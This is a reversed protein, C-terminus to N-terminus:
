SVATARHQPFSKRLRRRCYLFRARHALAKLRQQPGGRGLRRRQLASHMLKDALAYLPRSAQSIIQIDRDTGAEFDPEGGLENGAALTEHFVTGKIPYAVTTLAIDPECAELLSVTELIDEFGENMFGWMFFMGTQIGAGKLWGIARMVQDRTVGRKMLDLLRQSGSEAGVWLRFCRMERLADVIEPNLRDARSICEFPLALNRHERLLDRMQLLWPHKITFVDDAFWYHDFRYQQRLRDLEALVHTASRKRLSYGFVNHSCWTCRYPCGRSTILSIPRMGHHREWCDLYAELDIAARDPLPLSELPIKPKQPATRVLHGEHKFILGEIDRWHDPNDIQKLWHSFPLEGEGAIVLDFGRQLYAEAYYPPDPGGVVVRVKHDRIEERLHLVQLRTMMNAYFGVVEPEFRSLQRSFDEPRLFTGDYVMVEHGEKKLYACLHLLGLPPYPKMVAREAEDLALHYAHVLLVKM